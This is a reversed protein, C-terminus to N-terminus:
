KGLLLSHNEVLMSNRPDQKAGANKKLAEVKWIQTAAAKRLSICSWAHKKPRNRKKGDGSPNVDLVTILPPQTNGKGEEVSKNPSCRVKAGDMEM